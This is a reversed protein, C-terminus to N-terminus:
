YDFQTLTNISSGSLILLPVPSSLTSKKVQVLCCFGRYQRDSRCTFLLHLMVARFSLRLPCGRQIGTSQEEQMERSWRHGGAVTVHAECLASGLTLPSDGFSFLESIKHWKKEGTTSMIKRYAQKILKLFFLFLTLPADITEDIRRKQFLILVVVVM